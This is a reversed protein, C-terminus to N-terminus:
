PININKNYIYGRVKPPIKAKRYNERIDKPIVEKIFPAIYLLNDIIEAAWARGIVISKEIKILNQEKHSVLYGLEKLYYNLAYPAYNISKLEIVRLEKEKFKLNYGSKIINSEEQLLKFSRNFGDKGLELLKNAIPRIQNREYKHSFNSKDIFYKISNKNLFELLEDKTTNLLPRIINYNERGELEQMGSLTTVGAGKSLRMLLWELKDNLQHATLLNNYNHEKIIDKFFSYRFERANAEFNNNFKPALKIYVKKNFSTALEKAYAVEDKSQERLNYDVIAIDFPIDKEKLIFFLATSDVGASFALLNKSEKLLKLTNIEVM